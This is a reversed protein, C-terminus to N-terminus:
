INSRRKVALALVCLAMLMLPAPEPISSTLSRVAFGFQVTTHEKEPTVFGQCRQGSTGDNWGLASCEGDSLYGIPSASFASIHDGDDPSPTGVILVDVLYNLGEYEFAIGTTSLNRFGFIDGCGNNHIGGINPATGDECLGNSGGSNSTERFEFNFFLTPAAKETSSNDNANRLTLEDKVTAKLLHDDGSSIPNNWHTFSSGLAVFEPYTIDGLPTDNFITSITSTSDDAISGIVGGGLRSDGVSGTGITLASRNKWFDAVPSQFNGAANGWSLESSTAITNEGSGEFIAGEFTATTEYSWDTVRMLDAHATNIYALFFLASGLAAIRQKSIFNAM